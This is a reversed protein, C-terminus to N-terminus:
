HVAPYCLNPALILSPVITQHHFGDATTQSWEKPTLVSQKAAPVYKQLHKRVTKPSPVPCNTVPRPLRTVITTSHSSLPSSGRGFQERGSEATLLFHSSLKTTFNPWPSSPSSLTPSFIFTTIYILIKWYGREKELKSWMATGWCKIGVCDCVETSNIYKTSSEVFIHSSYPYQFM